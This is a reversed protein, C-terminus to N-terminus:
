QYESCDRARVLREKLGTHGETPYTKKTAQAPVHLSSQLRSPFSDYFSHYFACIVTSAVTGSITIKVNLQRPVNESCDKARVLQETLGSHRNVDTGVDSSASRGSVTKRNPGRLDEM